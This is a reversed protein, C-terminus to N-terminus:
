TLIDFSSVINSLKSLALVKDCSLTKGYGNFKRCIELNSYLVL